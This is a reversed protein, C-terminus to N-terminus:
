ESKSIIGIGLATDIVTLVIIIVLVILVKIWLGISDQKRYKGDLKVSNIMSSVFCYVCILFVVYTVIEFFINDNSLEFLQIIFLIIFCFASILVEVLLKKKIKKKEIDTYEIYKELTQKSEKDM